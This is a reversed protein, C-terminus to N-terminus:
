QIASFLLLCMTMRIFLVGMGSTPTGRVVGDVACGWQLAVEPAAFRLWAVM